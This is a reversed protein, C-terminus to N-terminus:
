LNGQLNLFHARCPSSIPSVLLHYLLIGLDVGSLDVFQNLVLNLHFFIFDEFGSLPGCFGVWCEKKEVYFFIQIHTSDLTAPEMMNSGIKSGRPM